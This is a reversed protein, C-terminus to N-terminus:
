LRPSLFVSLYTDLHLRDLIFVRCCSISKPAIVPCNYERTRKASESCHEETTTRPNPRIDLPGSYATYVGWLQYYLCCRRVRWIVIVRDVKGTYACEGLTHISSGGQLLLAKVEGTPLPPSHQHNYLYVRRIRMFNRLVDVQSYPHCSLQSRCNVFRSICLEVM